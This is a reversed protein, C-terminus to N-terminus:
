RSSRKSAKIPNLVKKKKTEVVPPNFPCHKDQRHWLLSAPSAYVSCDDSVLKSCGKCTIMLCAGIPTGLDIIDEKPEVVPIPQPIVMPLNSTIAPKSKFLNFM